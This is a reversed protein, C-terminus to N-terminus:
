SRSSCCRSFGAIRGAGADETQDTQQKSHKPKHHM